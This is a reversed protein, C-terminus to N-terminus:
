WDLRWARPYGPGQLTAQIRCGRGGEPASVRVQLAPVEAYVLLPNLALDAGADNGVSLRLTQGQSDGSWIGLPVSAVAGRADLEHLSIDLATCGPKPPVVLELAFPHATRNAAILASAAWFSEAPRTLPDLGPLAQRLLRSAQQADGREQAMLGRLALGRPHAPRLALARDLAFRIRELEAETDAAPVAEGAQALALWGNMAWGTLLEADAGEGAEEALDEYHGAAEAHRGLSELNRALLARVRAHEALGGSQLLVQLAAERQGEDWRQQWDRDLRWLGYGGLGAGLYLLAAAAVFGLCWALSIWNRGGQSGEDGEGGRNERGERGGWWLPMAALVALASLTALLAM